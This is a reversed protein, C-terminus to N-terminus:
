YWSASLPPAENSEHGRLYDTLAHAQSMEKWACHDEELGYKLLEAVQVEHSVRATKYYGLRRVDDSGLNKLCELRPCRTFFKHWASVPEHEDAVNGRDTLFISDLKLDELRPGHHRMYACLTQITTYCRLSLSNLRTMADVRDTISRLHDATRADGPRLNVAHLEFAKLAQLTVLFRAIHEFFETQQRVTTECLTLRLRLHTLCPFQLMGLHHLAAGPISEYADIWSTAYEDTTSLGDRGLVPLTLDLTLDNLSKMPLTPLLMPLLMGKIFLHDTDKPYLQPFSGRYPRPWNMPVTLWQHNKDEFYSWNRQKLPLWAVLDKFRGNADGQFNEFYISRDGEERPGAGIDDIAKLNNFAAFIERIDSRSAPDLLIRHQQEVEQRYGEFAQTKKELKLPKRVGGPIFEPDKDAKSPKVERLVKRSFPSRVASTCHLQAIQAKVDDEWNDASVYQPLITSVVVIKQVYHCIPDARSVNRLRDISASHLTISLEKFLSSTSLNCTLRCTLRLAKLSARDKSCEAVVMVVLESPLDILSKYSTAHRDSANRTPPSVPPAAPLQTRRARTKLKELRASPLRHYKYTISPM